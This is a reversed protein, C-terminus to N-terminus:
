GCDSSLLTSILEGGSGDSLTYRSNVSSLGGSLYAPERKGPPITIQPAQTGGGTITHVDYPLPRATAPSPRLVLAIIAAAAM